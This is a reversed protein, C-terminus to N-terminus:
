PTTTVTGGGATGGTTTPTPTPTGDLCRDPVCADGGSDHYCTADMGCDANTTCGLRTCFWQDQGVDALCLGAEPFDACQGGHPSCYTGVGKDNGKDGPQVCSGPPTADGGAGGGGTAPSGGSGGGAGGSGSADSGCSVASTWAAAVVLALIVSGTARRV